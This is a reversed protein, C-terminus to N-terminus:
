LESQHCSPPLMWLPCRVEVDTLRHGASAAPSPSVAAVSAAAAAAADAAALEAALQRPEMVLVELVAM